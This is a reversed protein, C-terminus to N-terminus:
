RASTKLRFGRAVNGLWSCRQAVKERSTEFMETEFSLLDWELQRTGPNGQLEGVSPGGPAARLICVECKVRAAGCKHARGGELERIEMPPHAPCNVSLVEVLRKLEM